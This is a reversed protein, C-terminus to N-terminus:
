PHQRDPHRTVPVQREDKSCFIIGGKKTTVEIVCPSGHSGIEDPTTRVDASCQDEYARITKGHIIMSGGDSVGM